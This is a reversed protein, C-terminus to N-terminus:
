PQEVVSRVFSEARGKLAFRGSSGGDHAPPPLANSANVQVTIQPVSVIRWLSYLLNMGGVYAPKTSRFGREDYYRLAWAVVPVQAQVAAQFLAAKFPLTALGHGTKAEPFFSVCRGSALAQAVAENVPTVDRRNERRIFVTGARAVVAGIFPWGRIEQKGVFVTPYVALLVLPDLWSIHNAVALFVAPQAHTDADSQVRINLAALLALASQQLTQQHRVDFGEPLAYLRKAVVLTRWLLLAIRGFRRLLPTSSPPM